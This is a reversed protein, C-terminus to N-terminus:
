LLQICSVMFRNGITVKLGNKYHYCVVDKSNLDEERKTFLVMKQYLFVQRRRGKVARLIGRKNVHWVMFSEQLLLKGLDAMNGHYGRLGRSHMVDNLHRLVSQMSQLAEQFLNFFSWIKALFVMVQVFVILSRHGDM